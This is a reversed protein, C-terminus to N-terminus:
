NEQRILGAYLNEVSLIVMHKIILNIIRLDQIFEGFEPDNQARWNTTLEQM